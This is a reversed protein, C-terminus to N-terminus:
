RKYRSAAPALSKSKLTHPYFRQTYEGTFAHATIYRLATAHTLRSFKVTAAAGDRASDNLEPSERGEVPVRTVNFTHHAKGDPPRFQLKTHPPPAHTSM